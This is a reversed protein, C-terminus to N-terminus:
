LAVGLTVWPNVVKTKRIWRRLRRSSVKLGLKKRRLLAWLEIADLSQQYEPSWDVRGMKMKRCKQEANAKCQLGAVHVEEYEKAQAVTIIGASVKTELLFLRHPLKLRQLEKELIKNYKKVVRPDKLKFVSGRCPYFTPNQM